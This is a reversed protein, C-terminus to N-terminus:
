SVSALHTRFNVPKRRLVDAMKMTRAPFHSLGIETLCGNIIDYITKKSDTNYYAHYALEYAAVVAGNALKETVQVVKPVIPNDFKNQLFAAITSSDEAVKM